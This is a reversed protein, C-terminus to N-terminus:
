IDSLEHHTKWLMAKNLQIRVALVRNTYQRCTTLVFYPWGDEIQRFLLSCECAHGNWCECIAMAWLERKPKVTFLLCVCPLTNPKQRTEYRSVQRCKIISLLLCHWGIRRISICECKIQLKEQLIEEAMIWLLTLRKHAMQVMDNVMMHVMRFVFACVNFVSEYVHVCLRTCSLRM